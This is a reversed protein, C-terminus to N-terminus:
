MINLYGRAQQRRRGVIYAVLVIIILAILSLGVAIPVIEPKFHNSECDKALSFTNKKDLKFAEFQVKSLSITSGEMNTSNLTQKQTCHFSFNSPTEFFTSNVERSYAIKVTNNDDSDNIGIDTKNLALLISKLDYSDTRTGNEFIVEFSNGAGWSVVLKDIDSACSSSTEDVKTHNVPIEYTM